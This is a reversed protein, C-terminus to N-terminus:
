LYKQFFAIVRQRHEEPVTSSLTVHGAGPVRWLEKPSGAAAYLDDFDPGYQDRDGRIFLIPRPAIKGVWHVAEYRFLNARLRVSTMAIALWAMPRTLWAPFGWEVGRAAVATRMRIPGGDNVVAAVEPCLPASLTATIGGLSFGLLGIRCMGRSRLFAVAGQVDRRELYGFTIQRGDSRGHGRFDFLLVNFGAAHLAPARHVDMDMSGMHGHLIVVARDPGPAPIWWGRLRLGDAALFAVEEFALGFDAPTQIETLTSRRTLLCSLALGVALALIILAGLVAVVIM